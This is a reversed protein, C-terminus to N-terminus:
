YINKIEKEFFHIFHTKDKISNDDFTSNTKSFDEHYWTSFTFSKYNEKYKFTIVSLIQENDLIMENSLCLNGYEEYKKTFWKVLNKHGGVIGGITLSEENIKDLELYIKIDNRSHNLIETRIDLLKEGVYNNINKFLEENFIGPFNWTEPNYSMGDGKGTGYKLPFLGMHSIGADIWYYYDYNGDIEKDLFYFKAWMVEHPKKLLHNDPNKLRIEKMRKHYPLNELEFIKLTVNKVLLENLATQIEDFDKISCYCVIDLNTNAISCLSYKFRETRSQLDYGYFPFENGLKSYIATVLKTKKNEPTKQGTFINTIDTLLGM